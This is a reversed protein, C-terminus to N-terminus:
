LGGLLNPFHHRFIDACQKLTEKGAAVDAYASTYAAAYGATASSAAAHAAAYASASASTFVYAAYVSSAAANLEKKTAEGRAYRKCTEICDRVRRDDPYKAEYIHLVLAACDAEAGILQRKTVSKTQAALWEMWDGHECDRWCEAATGGHQIVWEIPETCADLKRLKAVFQKNNM